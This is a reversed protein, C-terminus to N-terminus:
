NSYLFSTGFWYDNISRAVKEFGKLGIPKQIYSNAGAKYCACVDKEFRSTTLIVVPIAKLNEDAKLRSLVQYGTVKPMDLDLLILAPDPYRSVDDYKKKRFLYDLAESGNPSHLVPQTFGIKKFSRNIIEFDMQNDEIVLIPKEKSTSTYSTSDSM